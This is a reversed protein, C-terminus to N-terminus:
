THKIFAQIKLNKVLLITYCRKSIGETRFICLILHRNKINNQSFDRVRIISSRLPFKKKAGKLSSCSKRETVSCYIQSSFNTAILLLTLNAATQFYSHLYKLRTSHKERQFLTFINKTIKINWFIYTNYAASIKTWLVLHYPPQILSYPM